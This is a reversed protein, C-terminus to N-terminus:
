TVRQHLRHVRRGLHRRLQQWPRPDTLLPLRHVLLDHRPQRQDAFAVLRAEWPRSQRPKAVNGWPEAEIETPWTPKELLERADARLGQAVEGARRAVLARWVGPGFIRGQVERVLIRRLRPAIPPHYFRWSSPTLDLRSALQLLQPANQKM